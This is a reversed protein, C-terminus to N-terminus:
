GMRALDARESAFFIATEDDRGEGARLLHEAYNVRAGAFWKGGPMRDTDLVEEYPTTSAIGFYDWIAAWFARIDAVSWARMEEYSSFSLGREQRLWDMFRAMRSDRAFEEGPTWLLQGEAAM